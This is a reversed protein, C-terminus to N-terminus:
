RGGGAARRACARLEEIATDLTAMNQDYTAIESPTLASDM